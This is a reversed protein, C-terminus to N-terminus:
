NVKVVDSCVIDIHMINRNKNSKVLFSNNIRIIDGVKLKNTYKRDLCYITYQINKNSKRSDNFEATAVKGTGYTDFSIIKFSNKPSKNTIKYKIYRNDFTGNDMLPLKDVFYSNCEIASISGNSLKICYKYEANIGTFMLLIISILMSTMISVLIVFITSYEINNIFSNYISLLLVIIVLVICILIIFIQFDVDM